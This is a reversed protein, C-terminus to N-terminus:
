ESSRRLLQHRWHLRSGRRGGRDQSAPPPVPQGAQWAAAQTSRVDPHPHRCRDDGGRVRCLSRGLWLRGGHYGRVCRATGGRDAGEATRHRGQRRLLHLDRAPSGEQGRSHGRVCASLIGRRKGAVSSSKRRELSVEYICSWRWHCIIPCTRGPNTVSFSHATAPLTVSTSATSGCCRGAHPSVRPWRAKPSPSCKM